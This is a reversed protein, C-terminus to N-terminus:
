FLRVPVRVHFTVLSAAPTEGGSGSIATQYIFGLEPVAGPREGEEPADPRYFAGLGVRHRTQETQLELPTADVGEEVARYSDAGKSWYRYEAGLSVLPDLLLRPAFRLRVYDGLDREVIADFDAPALPREPSRIRVALEDAQQVGYRAVLNVLLTSAVRLDQYLSFEVDRQGDGLPFGVVDEPDIFVTSNASRVQFRVRVGVTTRAELGGREEPLRRFGDLVEFRLGLEPEGFLLGRNTTALPPVGLTEFLGDTGPEPLMFSPLSLDFASFGEMLATYHTLLQQGATSGAAPLFRQGTVRSELAAAFAGSASLLDMAQSEQEPTLEGSAIRAELLTRATSIGGFFGEPDAVADAALALNAGSLDVDVFPEAETKILPLMFDVSLRDLIGFELRFPISRVDADFERVDLDGLSAEGPALPEFGLSDAARNLGSVLAEPGPYLQELLPGDWDELLPVEESGEPGPGFETHWAQYAPAVRM